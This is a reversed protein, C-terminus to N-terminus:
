RRCGVALRGSAASPLGTVAAVLGVVGCALALSAFVDYVASSKLLFFVAAALVAVRFAVM